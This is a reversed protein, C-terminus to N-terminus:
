RSLFTYNAILYKIPGLFMVLARTEANILGFVEPKTSIYLDTKIGM